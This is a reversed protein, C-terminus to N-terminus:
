FDALSPAASKKMEPIRPRFFDACNPSIPMRAPPKKWEASFGIEAGKSRSRLRKDVGSPIACRAFSIEPDCRLGPLYHMKIESAIFGPNITVAPISGPAAATAVV